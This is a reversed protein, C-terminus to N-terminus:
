VVGTVDPNPLVNRHSLVYAALSMLREVDDGVCGLALNCQHCLLGRVEDTDHDHDIHLRKGVPEKGCVACGGDQAALMREYDDLNLGFKTRMHYDAESNARPNAKARARHKARLERRQESNKRDHRQYKTLGDDPVPWGM